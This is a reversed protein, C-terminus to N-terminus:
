EPKQEEEHKENRKKLTALLAVIGRLPHVTGTVETSSGDIKILIFKENTNVVIQDEDKEEQIDDSDQKPMDESDIEALWREIHDMFMDHRENIDKIANQLDCERPFCCGLLSIYSGDEHVEIGHDAHLDKLLAAIKHENRHIFEVVKTSIPLKSELQYRSDNLSTVQVM